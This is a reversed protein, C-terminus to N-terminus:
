KSKQDKWKWIYRSAVSRYPRWSEAIQEMAKHLHKGEHDLGYLGKM